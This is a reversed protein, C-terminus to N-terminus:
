GEERFSIIGAWILRMALITSRILYLVVMAMAFWLFDWSADMCFSLADLTWASQLLLFLVLVGIQAAVMMKPSIRVQERQYLVTMQASSLAAHERNMQILVLVGCIIVYACYVIQIIDMAWRFSHHIM